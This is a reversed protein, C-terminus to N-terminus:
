YRTTYDTTADNTPTDCTSVTVQQDAAANIVYWVGSTAVANGAFESDILGQDDTSYCYVEM